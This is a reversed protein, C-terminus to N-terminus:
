EEIKVSYSSSKLCKDCLIDGVYPVMITMDEGCNQCKVEKSEKTIHVVINQADGTVMKRVM